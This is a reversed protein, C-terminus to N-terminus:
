PWNPPAPRAQAAAVTMPDLTAALDHGWARFQAQDGAPVGLLHCIVAIPLPFALKDILDFGAAGDASALLRVTVDRIWPELGTIARPTFAGTVLRRLRTHDPPDMSLLNEGPLEARPDGAPYSPPQYGPQHLPSSSFRRDRLISAV